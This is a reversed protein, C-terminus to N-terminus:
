NVVNQPKGALFCKVNEVAMSLLRSRAEVTAWANHPTIVANRSALLPNTAPPPEASLVDMGAGAILGEELAAALEAENVIAGRATNILYASPKMTQMRSRNVLGRTEPTLPCHLTLFDSTAFLEDVSVFSVPYGAAKPTRANAAIKMGFASGVRGVQRGIRGFGLIGLTKGELEHLPFDWFAFDPAASWAGERVRYSHHGVGNAWHLIFAFVAQVVSSTGYAPVNCVPIGRERAAAADVVDYGTALVGVYRLSDLVGLAEARLPVKNTLVVQAGAARAVVDGAATRDHIVVDPALAKLGDWSLDGPNLTEGDLVVIKLPSSTSNPM